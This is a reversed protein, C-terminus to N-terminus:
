TQQLAKQLANLQSLMWGIFTQKPPQTETVGMAPIGAKKATNLMRETLPNTVQNNYILVKVEHNNLKDMFDRTDSATPETDNMVSLQFKKGYIILGLAEAMYNFVPETAIIPTGQFQERIEAIKNELEEYNERFKSLKGEFYEEHEPDLQVLESVLKKTYAPMADPDYWIHPNDGTNKGILDAVILITKTHNKNANILNVMWPDYNIGNYIILQANAIAKATSTNSSFLHPDQNPNKMISTVSVYPGGIEKALDGYFNEAAVVKIQEASLLSSTVLLFLTFINKRM